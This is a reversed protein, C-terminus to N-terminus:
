PRPLEPNSLMWQLQTIGTHLDQSTRTAGSEHLSEESYDGTALGLSPIGNELAAIMDRPTDGVVLLPTFAGFLQGVRQKARRVLSARDGALDGFSSCDHSFWGWLGVSKLKLVARRATNGTQLANLWGANVALRLAASVGPLAGLDGECLRDGYRQDLLYLLTQLDSETATRPALGRLIEFDTLGTTEPVAGSAAGFYERVVDTHLSPSQRRRAVLTGDVDWLLVGRVSDPSQSVQETALPTM